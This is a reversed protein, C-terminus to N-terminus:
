FFEIIGLDVLTGLGSLSFVIAIRNDNVTHSYTTEVAWCGPAYLLDLRTERTRGQTFSHSINGKIRLRETIGYGASLDLTHASDGAEQMYFYPEKRATNLTYRYNAALTGRPSGQWGTTLQYMTVGQGYMSLTTDYNVRFTDAPYWDLEFHVDSFPRRVEGPLLDRREEGLDFTQEVNFYAFRHRDPIEKKKGIIQLLNALRYHLWNKELIRDQEDFDPLDAQDKAPVYTYNIEPHVLHTLSIDEGWVGRFRRMLSSALSGEFSWMTRQQFDDHQWAPNRDGYDSVSYLTESGAASVSGELWGGLPLTTRLRPEVKLRHTGLGEHRWYNVYDAEWLLQTPWPLQKLTMEGDHTLRPLQQLPTTTVPEDLFNKVALTELGVFYHPWTKTLQLSSERFPISAEQFDRHFDKFYSSNGADFGTIGDRYEQLYDRDSVVDFDAKATIGGDFVHDVKGRLWYRDVTQRFFGDDNFDQGPRDEQNDHLFNASFSGRSEPGVVYRYELGLFGGRKDLIGPYLTLDSSPSLNVFFPAIMGIGDRESHSFEPMLFGTERITKAPLVLFPSYLLPVNKVRMTANRMVAYGEVTLDTHSAYISWAPSGNGEAVPCATVMGGDFRYSYTGTKEAKDALFYLENGPIQIITKVLTGTESQLYIEAEEASVKEEETLLSVHGRAHVFQEAVSFFIWDARIEINQGKGAHRLLIVDGEAIVKDPDREHIIRDATIEWPQGATDSAPCPVTPSVSSLAALCLCLAYVQRPLTRKEPVEKDATRRSTM